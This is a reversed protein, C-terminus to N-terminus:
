NELTLVAKTFVYMCVYVTVYDWCIKKQLLPPIIVCGRVCLCKM